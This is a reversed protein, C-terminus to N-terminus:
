RNTRLLSTSIILVFPVESALTLELFKIEKGEEKARVQYQM